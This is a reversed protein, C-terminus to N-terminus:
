GCKFKVLSISKAYAIIYEHLTSTNKSTAGRGLRSRWILAEIFNEEGFIEDM